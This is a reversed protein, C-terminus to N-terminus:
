IKGLLNFKLVFKCSFNFRESVELYEFIITQIDHIQKNYIMGEFWTQQNFAVLLQSKELFIQVLSTHLICDSKYRNLKQLSSNPWINSWPIINPIRKARKDRKGQVKLNTFGRIDTNHIIVIGHYVRPAEWTAWHYLIQM